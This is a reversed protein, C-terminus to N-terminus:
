FSEMKAVCTTWPWLGMKHAKTNFDLRSMRTAMAESELDEYHKGCFSYSPTYGPAPLFTFCEDHIFQKSLGTKANAWEVFEVYTRMGCNVEVDCITRLARIVRWVRTELEFACVDYQLPFRPTDFIGILDKRVTNLSRLRKSEERVAEFLQLERHFAAAESFPISLFSRLKAIAPVTPENSLILRHYAHTAEHVLVNLLSLWSKNKNPVVYLFVLPKGKIYDLVVTAGSTILPTLSAPAEMPAVDPRVGLDQVYQDIFRDVAKMMKQVEQLFDGEIRYDESIKQYVAGLSTDPGKVFPKALKGILDEILGLEEDLATQAHKHIQEATVGYDFHRNLIDEYAHRGLPPGAQQKFFAFLLNLDLPSALPFPFLADCKTLGKNLEKIALGVNSNQEGITTLVARVFGMADVGAKCVDGSFRQDKWRSYESEVVAVAQELLTKVFPANPEDKLLSYWLAAGCALIQSEPREYVLAASVSNLLKSAASNLDDCKIQDLRPRLDQIRRELITKSSENPNFLKGQCDEFGAAYGEVPDSEKWISIVEDLVSQQEDNASM